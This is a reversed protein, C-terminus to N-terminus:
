QASKILGMVKKYHQKLNKMATGFDALPYIQFDSCVCAPMSIILEDLGEPSDVDIILIAGHNGALSYIAEINRTKKREATWREMSQVMVPGVDQPMKSDDTIVLFKM